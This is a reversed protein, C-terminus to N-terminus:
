SSFRGGHIGEEFLLHMNIDTFLELEVYSMKLVAKYVLYTLLIKTVVYLNHYYILNLIELSQFVNLAHYYHKDFINDIDVSSYFISIQCSKSVPNKLYSWASTHTCM